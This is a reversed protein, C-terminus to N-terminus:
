SMENLEWDYSNYIINVNNLKYIEGNLEITIINNQSTLDVNGCANSENNRYHALLNWKIEEAKHQPLCNLLNNVQADIDSGFDRAYWLALRPLYLVKGNDEWRIEDSLYASAALRLSNEYNEDLVKIPPCSKAGCNLIFHIRFDFHTLSIKSRVDTTNTFYTLGPMGSKARNCRLIGHEIDDLSFLIGSINYLAYPGIGRGSGSFFAERSEPDNRPSGLVSNAHIVMSNYLNVFFSFKINEEMDILEGIPITSLSSSLTIYAKYESSEKMLRYDISRGDLSMFKDLMLLSQQKLIKSIALTSGKLNDNLRYLNSNHYSSSDFNLPIIASSSSAGDSTIQGRVRNHVSTDSDNTLSISKPSPKVFDIGLNLLLSFLKGNAVLKQLDDCGGIHTNGIYIQPVTSSKAAHFRKENSNGNNEKQFEDNLDINTYQIQYESLISKAIRCYKCASVSYVEVTSSGISKELLRGNM